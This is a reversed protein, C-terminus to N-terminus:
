IRRRRSRAFTHWPFLILKSYKGMKGPIIDFQEGDNIFLPSEVIESIRKWQFTFPPTQYYFVSSQVAQFDPDEWLGARPDSHINTHTFKCDTFHQLSWSHWFFAEFVNVTWHLRKGNANLKSASTNPHWPQQSWYNTNQIRAPLLTHQTKKSHAYTEGTTRTFTHDITIHWRFTVYDTCLALTSLTLHTAAAWVRPWVCLIFRACGRCSASGTDVPSYVSHVEAAELWKSRFRQPMIFIIFFMIVM